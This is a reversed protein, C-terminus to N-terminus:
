WRYMMCQICNGQTFSDMAESFRTCQSSVEHMQVETNGKAGLSVMALASSISLPSYFVNGTNKAKTIETIKKFLELSFNANAAALAEMTQGIPFPIFSDYSDFSYKMEGHWELPWVGFFNHAGCM